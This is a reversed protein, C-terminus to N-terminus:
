CQFKFTSYAIQNSDENTSSAQQVNQVFNHLEQNWLSSNDRNRKIKTYISYTNLLSSTISDRFNAASM